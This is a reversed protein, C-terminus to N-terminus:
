LSAQLPCPPMPPPTPTAKYPPPLTTSKAMTSQGITQPYNKLCPTAFFTKQPTKKIFNRIKSLNYIKIKNDPYILTLTELTKYHGQALKSRLAYYM